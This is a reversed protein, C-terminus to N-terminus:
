DPIPELTMGVASEEMPETKRGAIGAAYQKLRDGVSSVIRCFEPWVNERMYDALNDAAVVLAQVPVSCFDVAEDSARCWEEFGGTLFHGFALGMFLAIPISLIGFQLKMALIGILASTELALVTMSVAGLIKLLLAATEMTMQKRRVADMIRMQEIQACVMVTIQEPKMDAPINDFTGNKVNTYAIMSAVARFNIERSGFDLLVEAADSINEMGRFLEQQGVLACFMVGSNELAAKVGKYLESELEPTAEEESITIADLEALIRDKEAEDLQLNDLASVANVAATVKLWCACRERPSKGAAMKSLTKDLWRELDDKAAAFNSDFANVGELIAEAMMQGQELTKHDLGDMYIRAMIDRTSQGQEAQELCQRAQEILLTRQEETFEMM